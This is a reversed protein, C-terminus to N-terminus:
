RTWTNATALSDLSTCENQRQVTARPFFEHAVAGVWKEAIGRRSVVCSVDGCRMFLELCLMRHTPEAMSLDCSSLLSDFRKIIDLRVIIRAVKVVRQIKVESFIDVDEKSM